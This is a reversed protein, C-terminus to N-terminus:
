LRIGAGKLVLKVSYEVQESLRGNRTAIWRYFSGLVADVVANAVSDILLESKEPWDEAPVRTLVKLAIDSQSQMLQEHEFKLKPALEETYECKFYYVDYLAILEQSSEVKNFFYALANLLGAIPEDSQLMIQDAALEVPASFQEIIADFVELKNNFHWYFAGKTVEAKKAIETLSTHAVGKESFLLLASRILAQRTQEAEEKTKRAM